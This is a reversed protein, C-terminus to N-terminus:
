REPWHKAVYRYFVGWSAALGQEECLRQHLVSLHVQGVHQELYAHHTTVAATATGPLRQKAVQAMVQQTAATWAAESRQQAGRTLGLARAAQTYKRVTPRSYGLRASIASPGEGADWAVLIELIDPMVMRRRAM